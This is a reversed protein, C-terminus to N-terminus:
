RDVKSVFLYVFALLSPPIGLPINALALGGGEGGGGRSCFRPFLWICLYKLILLLGVVGRLFLIEQLSFRVLTKAPHLQSM